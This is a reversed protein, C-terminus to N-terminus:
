IYKNLITYEDKTVEILSELEAQQESYNNETDFFKTIFYEASKEDAAKFCYNTLTEYDGNRIAVTSIFCKLNQTM